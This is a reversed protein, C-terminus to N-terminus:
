NKFPTIDMLINPNVPIGEYTIQFHLHPSTSYGTNGVRAIIQGIEIFDHIDVLFEDLHAYLSKWSNLHNLVLVKGFYVDEKAAYVVGTATAFVPTGIEAAFDISPHGATFGASIAYAGQIPLFSPIFRNFVTGLDGIDSITQLEDLPMNLPNHYELETTLVNIRTQLVAIYNHFRELPISVELLESKRNQYAIFQYINIGLLFLVLFPLFKGRKAVSHATSKNRELKSPSPTTSFIM